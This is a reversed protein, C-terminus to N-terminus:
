NIRRASVRCAAQPTGASYNQMAKVWMQTSTAVAKRYSPISLSSDMAGTPPQGNLQNDGRVHDTTTNGSNASIAMASGNATAGNLFFDCSASLDWDGPTLTVTDVNTWTGSSSMSTFGSSSASSLYIAALSTNVIPGVQVWLSGNGIVPVAAATNLNIDEGAYTLFSANNDLTITNAGNNVVFMFCGINGTGATSISPVSFTNTVDTAIASGANIQKIGGCADAKITDGASLTQASPPISMIPGNNVIKSGQTVGYFSYSRTSTSNTIGGYTESRVGIIDFQLDNGTRNTTITPDTIESRFDGGIVAATPTSMAAGEWVSHGIIGVCSGVTGNGGGLITNSWCNGEVGFSFTQSLTGKIARGFIAGEHATTVTGSSNANMYAWITSSLQTTSTSATTGTFKYLQQEGDAVGFTGTTTFIDVGTTGNLSLVQSSTTSGPPTVKFVISAGNASSTWNESADIEISASPNTPFGTGNYGYADVFFLRDGSAVREKITFDNRARKATIGAPSGNGYGELELVGRPDAGAHLFPSTALGVCFILVVASIIKKM